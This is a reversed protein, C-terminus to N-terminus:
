RRFYVNAAIAPTTDYTATTLTAGVVLYTYVTGDCLGYGVAQPAVPFGLLYGNGGDGPAFEWATGTWRLLHGFQTELGIYGADTPGLTPQTAITFLNEGAARSVATLLSQFFGLWRRSTAGNGETLPVQTPLFAKTPQVAM